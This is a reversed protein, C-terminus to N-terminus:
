ISIIALPILEIVIINTSEFRTLNTVLVNTGFTGTSKQQIPV